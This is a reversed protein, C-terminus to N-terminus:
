GGLITSPMRNILDYATLVADNWYSKPIHMHFKLARTVELLQRTKRKAVGNQQSTHNHNPHNTNLSKRQDM